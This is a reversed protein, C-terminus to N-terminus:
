IMVNRDDYYENAFIKNSGYDVFPNKNIFDHPIKNDLLYKSMLNLFDGSRCTWIIIVNSIEGWLKNMKEVTGDILSSRLMLKSEDQEDCYDCPM